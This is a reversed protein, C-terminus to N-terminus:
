LCSVLRKALVLHKVGIRVEENSVYSKSKYYTPSAKTIAVKSVFSEKTEKTATYFLFSLSQQNGDRELM